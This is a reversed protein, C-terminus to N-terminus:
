FNSLIGSFEHLFNMRSQNVGIKQSKPINERRFNTFIGQFITFFENGGVSPHKKMMFEGSDEFFFDHPIWKEQIQRQNQYTNARSIQLHFFFESLLYCIYDILKIIEFYRPNGIRLASNLRYSKLRLILGCLSSRHPTQIDTLM